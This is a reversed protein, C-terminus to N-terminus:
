ATIGVILTPVAILAAVASIRRIDTNQRVSVQALSAGLISDLLESYATVREIAQTHHDAVDRLYAAIAPDVDPPGTETLRRLPAALPLVARSLELLERKLQYIRPADNGRDSSFVDAELQDIDTEVADAVDLYQDVVTDAIAHLVAAPGHALMKPEAELRNRVCALNPFDGHRVVM